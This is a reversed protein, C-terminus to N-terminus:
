SQQGTATRHLSWLPSKDHLVELMVTSILSKMGKTKFLKGIKEQCPSSTPAIEHLSSHNPLTGAFQNIWRPQTTNTKKANIKIKFLQM